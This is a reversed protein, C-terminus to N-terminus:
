IKIETIKTIKEPAYNKKIFRVADDRNKMKSPAIEKLHSLVKIVNIAEHIQNDASIVELTREIASKTKENEKNEPDESSASASPKNKHTNPQLANTLSEEHGYTNTYWSIHEPTEAKKEVPLDPEIGTAQLCSGDSLRYLSTTLKIACANELPIIEQVSGKGFTRTGVHIVISKQASKQVKLCGALIEAASATFNNTLIVIFPITHDFPSRKTIYRDIEKGSADNTTVVLSSKEIFLGAIDLASQLLGGSNNRLDLLLGKCPRRRSEELVKRLQNVSQESFISLSVYYMQHDEIYFCLTAHQKIKDRTIDFSLLNNNERLLKIHVVTNRKGQLRATAEETSMGELGKGDIEVIKDMARIGSKDAPGDPIIEIITLSKDKSQRTADIMVGIGCFSGSMVTSIHKYDNESLFDSHPDLTSCIAKLGNEMAEEFHATDFHKEGILQLSQAYTGTWQYVLDDFAKPEKQDQALICSCFICFYLTYHTSKM